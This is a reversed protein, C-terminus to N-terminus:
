LSIIINDCSHLIFYFSTMQGVTKLLGRDCAVM